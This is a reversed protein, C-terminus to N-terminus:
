NFYSMREFNRHLLRSCSLWSSGQHILGQNSHDCSQLGASTPLASDETEFAQYPTSCIPGDYCWLRAVQSSRNRPNVNKSREAQVKKSGNFRFVSRTQIRNKAKMRFLIALRLKEGTYEWTYLISKKGTYERWTHIEKSLFWYLKKNENKVSM